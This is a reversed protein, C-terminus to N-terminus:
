KLQGRERLWPKIIDPHHGSYPILRDEWEILGPSKMWNGSHEQAKELRPDYTNFFYQHLGREKVFFAERHRLFGYHFITIGPVDVANQSPISELPNGTSGDSPLWMSQPAIRIVKHSCCVGHPVLHSSDMWFNLRDIRATQNPKHVAMFNRISPYSRDDLIEDADLQFQYDAKVHDRSYNIWKVFFEPDGKPHPWPYVCLRLKPESSMWALVAEVTGDNSEADCVTVTDCIPLLSSISERWCYDLSIGNRIIVHGGITM